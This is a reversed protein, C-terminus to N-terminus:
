ELADKDAQQYYWVCYGIGVVILIDAINIASRSFFVIYDTTYGTIFRDVFNSLAGLIASLLAIRICAHRVRVLLFFFCILVIGTVALTINRALPISFAIGPNAFYTLHIFRLSVHPLDQHFAIIKMGADILAFLVVCGLLIRQKTQSLNCKRLSPENAPLM